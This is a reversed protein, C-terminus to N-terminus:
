THFGTKQLEHSDARESKVSLGSYQSCYDYKVLASYQVTPKHITSKTTAQCKHLMKM